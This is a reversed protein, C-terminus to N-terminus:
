FGLEAPKFTIKAEFHVLHALKLNIKGYLNYQSLAIKLM